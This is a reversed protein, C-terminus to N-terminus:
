RGLWYSVKVAFVNDPRADILRRTAPGFAFTGDDEVDERQQTWVLYLTSGPRYEWRFVANGRLSVFRFDPRDFTFSAAPGDGDPDVHVEGDAETFAYRTFDFTRPAALEGYGSYAGTAILPQAFLQLSMTPSFTWNMRLTGQVQWQDLRGFVYRRGFTATALPDDVTTVYQATAVNHNFGPGFSLSVNGRPKWTLELDGGLTPGARGAFGYAGLGVQWPRRADSSVWVDANVGAPNLALPGGRTRHMDYADLSIFTGVNVHWYNLLQTEARAWLGNGTRVGDFNLNAFAAAMLTRRRFVPGPTNTFHGAFLHTNIIDARGLFGVDNLNFTPSVVGLAANVM